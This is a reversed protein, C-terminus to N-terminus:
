RIGRAFGARLKTAAADIAADLEGALVAARIADLTTTLDNSHAVEVAYKGRALELVRSGYRVSIALKGTHTSFWWPKVMVHAEVQRRVGTVTDTYSRYKTIRYEGGLAQAKALEMQQWVRLALKNRRLVVQPVQQPKRADTLTLKALASTATNTSATATTTSAM